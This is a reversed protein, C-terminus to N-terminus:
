VLEKIDVKVNDKKDEEEIQLDLQSTSKTPLLRPTKQEEVENLIEEEKKLIKDEKKNMKKSQAKLGKMEDENPPRRECQFLYCLNIKCHCKSQWIVLLLSGIAGLILVVAGALQDVSMKDIVIIENNEESM